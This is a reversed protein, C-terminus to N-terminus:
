GRGTIMGIAAYDVINENPVVLCVDGGLSIGANCVLAVLACGQGMLGVDGITWGGKLM